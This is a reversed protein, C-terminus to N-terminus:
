SYMLMESGQTSRPTSLTFSEWQICLMPAGTTISGRGQTEDGTRASRAGQRADPAGPLSPYLEAPSYLVRSRQQGKWSAECVGQAASGVYNCLGCM